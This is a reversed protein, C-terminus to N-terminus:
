MIVLIRRLNTYRLGHASKTSVGFKSLVWDLFTYIARENNKDWIPVLEIWTSFHKIM